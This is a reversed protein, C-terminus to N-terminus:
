LLGEEHFSMWGDATVIVHDLLRVGVTAAADAIRRTLAVDEPSPRLTGAPHNHALLVGVAKHRLALEVVTRPFVVAQDVTGDSLVEEALLENRVNLFFARFQERPRAGLSVRCYEYLARPSSLRHREQRTRAALLREFLAQLSKLFAAAGPGVGPIETLEEPPAALVRRLDGFRALLARAIPKTDKRPIVHFLLFEIVEHDAFGAFGTELFRRRLRARHGAPDTRPM